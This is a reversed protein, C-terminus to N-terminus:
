LGTSGTQSSLSRRTGAGTAGLARMGREKIIGAKPSRWGVFRQFIGALDWACVHIRIVIDNILPKRVIEAWVM